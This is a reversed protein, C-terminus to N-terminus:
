ATLHHIITISSFLLCMNSVSFDCLFVVDILIKQVRYCSHIHKWTTTAPIFIVKLQIQLLARSCDEKGEFHRRRHRQRKTAGQENSTARDKWSREEDHNALKLKGPPLPHAIERGM